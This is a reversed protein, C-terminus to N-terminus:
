FDDEVKGVDPSEITFIKWQGLKNRKLACTAQSHGDANTIQIISEKGAISKGIVHMVLKDEDIEYGDKVKGGLYSKVTIPDDWMVFISQGIEEPNIKFGSPSKADKLLYPKPLILTAMGEGLKKDSAANLAAIMFYLVSKEPTKSDKTWKTKFKGFDTIMKGKINTDVKRIKELIAEEAEDIKDLIADEAEREAKDVLEDAIRKFLGM